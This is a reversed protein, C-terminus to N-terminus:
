YYLHTLANHRQEHPMVLSLPGGDAPAGSAHAWRKRKLRNGILQHQFHHVAAEAVAISRRDAIV